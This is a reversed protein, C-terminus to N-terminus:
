LGRMAKGFVPEDASANNPSPTQISTSLRGPVPYPNALAADTAALVNIM